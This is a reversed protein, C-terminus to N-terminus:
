HLHSFELTTWAHCDQVLREEICSGLPAELIKHRYIFTPPVLLSSLDHSLLIDIESGSGNKFLTTRHDINESFQMIHHSHLSFHRGQHLHTPSTDSMTDM